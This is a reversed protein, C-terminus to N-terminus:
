VAELLREAVTKDIKGTKVLTGNRGSIQIFYIGRSFDKVSIRVVNKVALPARPNGCCWIKKM